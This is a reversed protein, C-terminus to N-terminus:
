TALLAREEYARVLDLQNRGVQHLYVAAVGRAELDRLVRAHEGLDSSVLVSKRVDEERVLPLLADFEEVTTLNETVQRPLANTRWQEMAHELAEDETGAYSVHMQVAVPKGPAGQQFADIVPRAAGGPTWLTVLGDAWSACWRATEASLALGFLQPRAPPRTWLRARDVKIPGERSVTEGDFLARIISAAAELRENRERKSPWREGVIHENLAEGSGLALTLRGPFMEALTAAAQAVIAPHYRWGVPTTVQLAPLSTAHMAAGLWAWPFGSQGQRQSWPAFHDSSMLGHFGAREAQAALALLESPAFQEHSAHLGVRLM